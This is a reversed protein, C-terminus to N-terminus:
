PRVGSPVDAWGVGEGEDHQVVDHRDGTRGEGNTAFEQVLVRCLVAAAAASQATAPGQSLWDHRAEAPGSGSVLVVM